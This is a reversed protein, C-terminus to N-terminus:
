VPATRNTCACDKPPWAGHWSLALHEGPAIADLPENSLAGGPGNIQAEIHGHIAGHCHHKQRGPEAVLRGLAPLRAHTAQACLGPGRATHHVLVQHRSVGQLSIGLAVIHQDQGMAVLGRQSVHETLSRQLHIARQGNGDTQCPSDLHESGV